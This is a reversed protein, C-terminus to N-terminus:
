SSRQGSHCLKRRGAAEYKLMRYALSTEYVLLSAGSMLMVFGIGGAVMTARVFASDIMDLAAENGFEGVFALLTAAAFCGLSLYLLGMAWVTLLVRTEAIELQRSLELATEKGGGSLLEAVERARTVSRALRNATSLLLVSIANTLLAPAGIYGLASTTESTM